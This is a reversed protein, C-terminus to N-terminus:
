ELREGNKFKFNMKVIIIIFFTLKDLPLKTMVANFLLSTIIQCASIEYKTPNMTILPSQTVSLHPISMTM